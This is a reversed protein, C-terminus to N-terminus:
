QRRRFYIKAAPNPVIGNMISLNPPRVDDVLKVDYTTVIYALLTKLEASAFFRGPCAHRGQGFAVFDANTTVFDFKRDPYGDLAARDKMKIFRFGDFRLPDEYTRPDLHVSNCSVSLTTGAPVSTGDSFTYDAVAYRGMLVECDFNSDNSPQREIM